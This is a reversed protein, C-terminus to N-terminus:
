LSLPKPRQEDAKQEAPQIVKENLEQILSDQSEYKHLPLVWNYRGLHEYMAWSAQDNLIISQVPLSPMFPVIATLEQPISRADTLDAIIFRSLSALTRVTETLDKSSPKEFDFLIPLYGRKRLADRLADLTAKREPTFRGLILVAKGTITDIVNRLKANNLLLYIFQAVELDDVTIVSQKDAAINLNKQSSGEINIDWVAVGYISCSELTANTFNTKILISQQINTEVLKAHSLNVERLDARSLNAWSLDAHSLNARSLNARSLDAKSLDTGWLNAESLNAESLNAESLNSDPLYVSILNAERLNAESLNSDPLYAESLNAGRLYARSLVAKTMFATNLNAESLNAESLNAESLNAGRLNAGSLNAESLDAKSLNAGGLNVGRLNAKRLDAESLDPNIQPHENQWRQWANAGRKLIAQQKKDAM